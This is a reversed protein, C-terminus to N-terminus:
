DVSINILYYFDCAWFLFQTCVPWSVIGGFQTDLIVNQVIFKGLFASFIRDKYLKLASIQTDLMFTPLCIILRWLKSEGVEASFLM